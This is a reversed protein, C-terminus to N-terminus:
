GFNWTGDFLRTGDFYITTPTLIIKDTTITVNNGTINVADVTTDTPIVQGQWIMTFETSLEKPALMLQLVSDKIHTHNYTYNIAEVTETIPATGKWATTFTTTISKTEIPTDNVIIIFRDIAYSAMKACGKASPHVKDTFCTFDQIGDIWMDTDYFDFLIVDNETTYEKIIEHIHEFGETEYAAQWVDIWRPHYTCIIPVINNTTCLTVMSRLNDILTEDLPTVNQAVDNAGAIIMCYDPSFAIVDDQFKSLITGSTTGVIGRNIVRMGTQDRILSSWHAQPPCPTISSGEYDYPFAFTEWEDDVLSDGVCCLTLEKFKDYIEQITM